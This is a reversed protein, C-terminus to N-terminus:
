LKDSPQDGAWAHALLARIAARDLARPNYFTSKMVLDTIHDIGAEPMGIEALSTPAGLNKALNFLGISPDSAGLARGIRKMADPEASANYAVAHPLVITHTEAHPLNYAGGLIHCLRHHLAAGVSGFCIGCLWAGYLALSRAELGKSDRKIDPLAKSLAQIGEEAMLSIVPNRAEAYLAEVAHAIANIGSTASLGPPLSLTLNVDYIVTDPLVKMNRQTTKVGNKTEGLIPTVESGAYTTPVIVQKIGTRLAIAKSLGTTSGGGVAVVADVQAARVIEVAQDTVEVPTHMTAMPLTGAARSGILGVVREAEALQQPTSLVLTRAAKLRDLEEPLRQVTGTGFVVRAPLGNYIFPSM